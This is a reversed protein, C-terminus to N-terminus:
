KEYRGYYILVFVILLDDQVQILRWSDLVWGREVLDDVAPYAQGNQDYDSQYNLKFTLSRVRAIDLIVPSEEQVITAKGAEAIEKETM